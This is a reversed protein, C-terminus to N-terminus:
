NQKNQLHGKADKTAELRKTTEREILKHQITIHKVSDTENLIKDFLLDLASKYQESSFTDITTLPIQAHKASSINNIGMVSIDDPVKIGNRDLHSTLSIAVEDYAAILATPRDKQSIIKMAAQEGIEEFRCPIIYIFEDNVPLKNDKMTATFCHLSSLTHTEGVFGIKRHGLNVLYSVADEIIAKSDFSVSDFDNEKHPSVMVIPINSKATLHPVGFMIIGDTSGHLIISKLIDNAKDNSFDSIFIAVHGNRAEIENKMFTILTSYYFGMVEPVILAILLSTNDTYDRKRKSKEKFYGTDIAFKQIMETTEHSIETSGSLAKSVTSPSVHLLKAIKKQNM